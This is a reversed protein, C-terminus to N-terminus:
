AKNNVGVQSDWDGYDEFVADPDEGGGESEIGSYAMSIRNDGEVAM